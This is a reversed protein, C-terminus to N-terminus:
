RLPAASRFRHVGAALRGCVSPQLLARGQTLQDPAVALRHVQIAQVTRSGPWPAQRWRSRAACGRKGQLAVIVASHMHALGSLGLRELLRDVRHQAQRGLRAAGM